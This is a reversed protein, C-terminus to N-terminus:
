RTAAQVEIERLSGDVGARFLKGQRILLSQFVPDGDDDLHPYVQVAIVRGAYLSTVAPVITHGVLIRSVGFHQHIAEVDQTSATPYDAEEPFYGRYWMPGLRGMIFEAREQDAKHLSGGMVQHVTANIDGLTFERDILARSIGGHLCLLDNIKFVAPQARLWQGLVSDAGFLATYNRVGLLTATSLYKPNLYRQDGSLAMAEHNGLVLHVGGGAREAEAQLKYILWLIETQHAGRDFVDGLLVLHGGGFSWKLDPGAVGQKVLMQVLIEYEGHTDAIVFLQAGQATTMEYPVSEVPKRLTVDFAPVKGVAPVTISSGSEVPLVGTRLGQPTGKVSWAEWAGRENRVVYPGDPLGPHTTPSASSIAAVALLLFLWDAVRVTARQPNM